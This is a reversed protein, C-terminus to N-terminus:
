ILIRDGSLRQGAGKGKTRQENEDQSEITDTLVEAHNDKYYFLAPLRCIGQTKRRRSGCIQKIKLMAVLTSLFFVRM